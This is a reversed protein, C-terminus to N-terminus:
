KVVVRLTPPKLTPHHNGAFGHVVSGGVLEATERVVMLTALKNGDRKLFTALEPTSLSFVGELVGQPMTFSGLKVTKGSVVSGSLADNAPANEWTLGDASWADLADETVGYVTFM